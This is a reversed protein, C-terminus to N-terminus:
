TNRTTSASDASQELPRREERPDSDLLWADLGQPAFLDFVYWALEDDKRFPILALGQAPNLCHVDIAALENFASKRLPFDVSVKAGYLGPKAPNKQRNTLQNGSASSSKAPSKRM